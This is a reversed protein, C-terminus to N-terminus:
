QNQHLLQHKQLIDHINNFHISFVQSFFQASFAFHIAADFMTCLSITTFSGASFPICKIALNLPIVVGLPGFVIQLAISPSDNYAIEWSLYFFM